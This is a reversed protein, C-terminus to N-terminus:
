VFQGVPESITTQTIPRGALQIHDDNLILDTPGPPTLLGLRWSSRFHEVEHTTSTSCSSMPPLNSM